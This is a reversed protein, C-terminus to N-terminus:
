RGRPSIPPIGRIGGRGQGGPASNRLRTALACFLKLRQVTSILASRGYTLTSYPYHLASLTLASVYTRSKLCLMQKYDDDVIIDDTM